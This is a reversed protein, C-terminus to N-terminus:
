RSIVIKGRASGAVQRHLAAAAESLAYTRDIAPVVKGAEVLERLADLDAANEKSVLSRLRQGRVLPALLMMRVNRAFGGLLRGDSEGGVIVLTGKPALLRRVESLRRNGGTDFVVDYVRDGDTFDGLTYDIVEDAGLDRVLDLKATSAVATAHAGAAKVLQLIFSGVGGSAGIILARQGAELKAEDRVAQLAAVASVPMTAAQEFSVNGPKRAVKREDTAVLEAFSGDGTGYVADGVELSTVDDGVSVVTGAFSRGPNLAKPRRFGFGTLRMLLPRGTMLHWTGRDVSAAAVEVLVDTRQITPKAVEAVRLVEAADSGYADQVIARMPEADTTPTATADQGPRTV